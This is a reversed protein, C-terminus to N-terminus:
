PTQKSKLKRLLFYGGVVALYLAAFLLVFMSLPTGPSRMPFILIALVSVLTLLRLPDRLPNLQGMSRAAITGGLFVVCLLGFNLVYQVLSIDAARAPIGLLALLGLWLYVRGDGKVFLKRDGLM